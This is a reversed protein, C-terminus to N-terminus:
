SKKELRLKEIRNALETNGAARAMAACKTRCMRFGAIASDEKARKLTRLSDFADAKGFMEDIMDRTSKM